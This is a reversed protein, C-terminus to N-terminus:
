LCMNVQTLINNMEMCVFIDNYGEGKTTYLSSETGRIYVRNYDRLLCPLCLGKTVVIKIFM